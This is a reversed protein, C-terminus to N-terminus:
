VTVENVVIVGGRYPRYEIFEDKDFFMHNTCGSDIMWDRSTTPGSDLAASYARFYSFTEHSLQDIIEFDVVEPQSALKEEAGRSTEDCFNPTPQLQSTSHASSAEVITEEKQYEIDPLARPSPLLRTSAYEVFNSIHTLQVM